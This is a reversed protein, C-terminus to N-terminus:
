FDTHSINPFLLQNQRVYLEKAYAYIDMDHRNQLMLQKWATSNKQVLTHNIRVDGEMFIKHTCNNHKYNWGFYNQFKVFSGKLDDMMGILCKKELIKKARQVDTKKLRGGRKNILFRTLWNNEVSKSIAYQEFTTNVLSPNYMPDWTANQLYYYMSIARKIPHTFLTFMRGKRSSSFLETSQHLLPSYIVDVLNSSTLGLKKAHKIGSLTTTDVNLYKKGFLPVIRLSNGTQNEPSLVGSESTQTFNYCKGLAREIITGGGL